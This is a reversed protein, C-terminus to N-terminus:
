RTHFSVSKIQDFRFLCIKIFRVCVYVCWDTIHRILMTHKKYLSAFGFIQSEIFHSLAFQLHSILHCCGFFAFLCVGRFATFLFRVFATISASHSTVIRTKALCPKEKKSKDDFNWPFIHNLQLPCAFSLCNFSSIDSVAIKMQFEINPDSHM